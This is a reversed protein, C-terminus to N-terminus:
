KSVFHGWSLFLKILTDEHLISASKTGLKVWLDLWNYISALLDIDILFLIQWLHINAELVM